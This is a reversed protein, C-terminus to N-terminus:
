PGAGTGHVIKALKLLQSGIRLGAQQAAEVNVELRVRNQEMYFNVIVGREAYGATDGITLTADGKIGDLVSGLDDSESAAIFLVRCEKLDTKPDAPLVEWTLNGVQKGRLIDIAHGFPNKGLICLRLANAGPPPNPWEVLKAINHIFAAKIEYETPADALVGTGAAFALIAFLVLVSKIRKRKM